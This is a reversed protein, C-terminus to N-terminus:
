EIAGPLWVWGELWAIEDTPPTPSVLEGADAAMVVATLAADFADESAITADRLDRRLQPHRADVDDRRAMWDSKVVPGTCARPWVEVIMPWRPEDFPWIAYGARRLRSLIPFARVSGSGVSGAGGVQFTSKPRIGGISAIAQETARFHAPVDPRTRGRHGWFPPNCGALWREGDAGAADWLDQVTAYGREHLFWAPLSFSCDIGIVVDDDTEALDVLHDAVEECADSRM